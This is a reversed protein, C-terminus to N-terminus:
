KHMGIIDDDTMAQGAKPVGPIGGAAAGKWDLYRSYGGVVRAPDIGYSQADAITSQTHQAFGQEAASMLQNASSILEDMYGSTVGAGGAQLKQLQGKAREMLAMGEPTRAYESERVVSSPDLLKNFLTILTQDIAGRPLVEGKNEAEVARKKWDALSGEMQAKTREIIQFDKTLQSGMYDQKLQRAFKAVELADGPEPPKPKGLLETERNTKKTNAITHATTATTNAVNATGQEVQLKRLQPAAAADGVVKDAEAQRVQAEAMPDGPEQGRMVRLKKLIDFKFSDSYQKQSFPGTYGAEAPLDPGAADPNADRTLRDQFQSVLGQEAKAQDLKMQNSEISQSTLKDQQAERARQRQEDQSSKLIALANMLGAHSRSFSEDARQRNSLIPQM